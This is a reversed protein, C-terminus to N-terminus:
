KSAVLTRARAIEPRSSHAGGDCIALLQAYYESAAAPQGALEAARAAGYVSDFRNPSEKLSNRYEALADAYRQMELLMDAVMERAPVVAVEPAEADEQDAAARMAKVAEEKKGEAYAAWAEVEQREVSVEGQASSHYRDNNDDGARYNELDQRAGADDGIHAAGIVRTWYTYRRGRPGVAPDIPLAAAHAWDHLELYYRGLFYAKETARHDEAAKPITPVKEIVQWADSERGIQLYAYELYDMPHFAYHAEALGANIEREAAAEAATNSDISEHWLGLRSFIHSPMHIAHSSGPAIKAYRRAADLGLAALDPRDASHILYHAAGPHNPEAAVVKDLIAIAKRRNTLDKEDDPESGILSLAYFTAAEGDGPYKEYIKAMADSYLKARALHELKGDPNFFLAAAAIFDRERETQRKIKRAQGLDKHGAKLTKKDPHDWLQHYRAMAEGWHAMACHKDAKATDQFARESATYQFSHMLAVAREFSKQAGPSCSTPFVITGLEASDAAGNGMDHHHHEEGQAALRPSIALLLCALFALLRIRM